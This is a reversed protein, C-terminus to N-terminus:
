DSEGRLHSLVKGTVAVRVPWSASRDPFVMNVGRYIKWDEPYRGDVRMSEVVDVFREADADSAAVYRVVLRIASERSM